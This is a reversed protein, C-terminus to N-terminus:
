EGEMFLSVGGAGLLVALGLCALAPWGGGIMLVSAALAAGAMSLFLVGWLTRWPSSM